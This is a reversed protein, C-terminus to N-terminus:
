ELFQLTELCFHFPGLECEQGEVCHPDTFLELVKSSAAPIGDITSIDESVSYHLINKMQM